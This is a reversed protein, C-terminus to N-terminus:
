KKHHEKGARPKSHQQTPELLTVSKTNTAKAKKNQQQAETKGTKRLKDKKNSTESTDETRREDNNHKLM